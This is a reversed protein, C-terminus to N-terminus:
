ALFGIFCLKCLTYNLIYVMVMNNIITGSIVERKRKTQTKPWAWAMYFVGPISGVWAVDTVVNFRKVCQAMLSSSIVLLEYDNVFWCSEM